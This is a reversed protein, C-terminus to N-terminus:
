SYDFGAYTGVLMEQADEDISGTPINAAWSDGFGLHM